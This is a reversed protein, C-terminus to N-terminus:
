KLKGLIVVMQQKLLGAQKELQMVMIDGM